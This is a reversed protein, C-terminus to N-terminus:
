SSFRTYGPKTIFSQLSNPAAPHATVTVSM